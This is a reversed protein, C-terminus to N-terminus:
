YQQLKYITKNIGNMMKDYLNNFVPLSFLLTISVSYVFLFIMNMIPLPALPNILKMLGNPFAQLLYIIMSRQGIKSIYANNSPAVAIIVVVFISALVYNVARGVLGLYENGSAYPGSMGFNMPVTHTIYTVFFLALGFIFLALVVFKNLTRIQNIHRETCYYGALFFWCFSITRSLSLFTDVNDVFGILLGIVITIPIIWKIKVLQGLLGRYCALSILFWFSFNPTLLNLSQEGTVLYKVVVYALDFILYSIILKPFVSERSKAINKSFYGAIFIFLPMHFSYILYYAFNMIASTPTYAEIAHGLVVTLIVFGKINDFAIDRNHIKEM